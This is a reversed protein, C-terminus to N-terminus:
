RLAEIVDTYSKIVESWPKLCTSNPLHEKRTLIQLLETTSNYTHDQGAMEVAGGGWAPVYTPLGRGIAEAVHNPGPDFETGTIYVDHHFLAKALDIGHLPKIVNVCKPLPGATRGIYTFVNGTSACWEGVQTYVDHGKMPHNSWHHTVIRLQGAIQTRRPQAHFIDSYGNIVVSNAGRLLTGRKYAEIRHHERLWESIYFTHSSISIMKRVLPDVADIDGKRKDCENVRYLVPVQPFHKKFEEIEDVGVGLEDRRPDVIFIVDVSPTLHTVVTHGLQQLTSFLYSVFANGGGWPGTRPQRNVYVKM